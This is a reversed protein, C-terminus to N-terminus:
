TIIIMSAKENTCVAVHMVRPMPLVGYGHMYRQVCLRFTARQLGWVVSDCDAAPPAQHGSKTEKGCAAITASARM